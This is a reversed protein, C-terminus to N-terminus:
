LGSGSFRLGDAEAAAHTPSNSDLRTASAPQTTTAPALGTDLAPATFRPRIAM